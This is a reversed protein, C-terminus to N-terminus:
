PRPPGGQNHFRVYEPATEAVRLATEGPVVVFQEPDAGPIECIALRGAELQKGAEDSVELFPAKRDRTVFHWRRPGRIGSTVARDKIMQVLAARATKAAQEKTREAERARDTERRGREKALRDEEARRREEDVAGKGLKNRRAKEDHALQRARKDDALGKKLLEDKLSGM